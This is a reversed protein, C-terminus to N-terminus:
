TNIVAHPPRAQKDKQTNVLSKKMHVQSRYFVAARKPVGQALYPRRKTTIYEM